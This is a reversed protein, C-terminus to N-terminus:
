VVVFVNMGIFIILIANVLGVVVLLNLAAAIANAKNAELKVAHLDEM